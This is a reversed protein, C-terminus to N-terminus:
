YLKLTKMLGGRLEVVHLTLLCAVVIINDFNFDLLSETPDM